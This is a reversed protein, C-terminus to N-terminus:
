WLGRRWAHLQPSCKRMQWERKLRRQFGLQSSVGARDPPTSLENTQPHPTHLVRVIPQWDLGQEQGRGRLSNHSGIAKVRPIMKSCCFAAWTCRNQAWCTSQTEFYVCSCQDPELLALFFLTLPTKPRVPRQDDTFAKFSSPSKNGGGWAAGKLHCSRQKRNTRDDSIKSTKGSAGLAAWSLVCGLPAPARIELGSSM